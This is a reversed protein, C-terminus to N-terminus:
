AVIDATVISIIIVIIVLIISNITIIIVILVLISIMIIIMLMHIIITIAIIFADMVGDLWDTATPDSTAIYIITVMFTFTAAGTGLYGILLVM